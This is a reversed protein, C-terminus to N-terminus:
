RMDKSLIQHGAFEQTAQNGYYTVIPCSSKAAPKSDEELDEELEEVDDDEENVTEVIVEDQTKDDDEDDSNEDLGKSHRTTNEASRVGSRVLLQETEADLIWYCMKDGYSRARGLWRGLKENGGIEPFSHTPNEFYVKEWFKFLLLGSIDPTDGDSIEL